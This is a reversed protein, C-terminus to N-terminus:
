IFKVESDYRLCASFDVELLEQKERESLGLSYATLLKAYALEMTDGYLPIMRRGHKEYLLMAPVTDYQTGDAADLKKVPSVYVDIGAEACRDLLYLVSHVSPGGPEGSLETCATGSHYAGHLVAQYLEYRYGEYNIGVYPDIKLICDCLPKGLMKWLLPETEQGAGSETGSGHLLDPNWLLGEEDSFLCGPRIVGKVRGAQIAATGYFASTYNRSQMLSWGPHLYMVPDGPNQYPVYVGAGLGYGICEVACRFNRHGNTREAGDELPANGSVLFVPIKLGYLLVSLLAATYALTDTGHALIVGDYRSFDVTQLYELIRNWQCITMNESLIHFHPGAEFETQECFPSDSSLYHSILSYGAADSAITRVGNRTESCITGGTFVTLIKKKM